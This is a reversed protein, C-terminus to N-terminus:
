KTGYLLPLSPTYPVSGIPNSKLYDAWDFFCRKLQATKHAELAQLACVCPPYRICPHARCTCPLVLIPLLAPPVHTEWLIARPCPPQGPFRIARALCSLMRLTGSPGGTMPRPVCAGPLSPPKVSPQSARTTISIWQSCPRGADMCALAGRQMREHSTSM